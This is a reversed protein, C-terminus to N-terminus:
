TLHSYPKFPQHPKLPTKAMISIEDFPLKSEPKTKMQEFLSNNDNPISAEMNDSVVKSDDAKKFLSDNVSTPEGPVPTQSGPTILHYALTCRWSLQQYRTAPWRSIM